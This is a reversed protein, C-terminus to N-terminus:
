HGKSKKGPLIFKLWSPASPSFDADFEVVPISGMITSTQLQRDTIEWWTPNGAKLQSDIFRPATLNSLTSSLDPSIGLRHFFDFNYQWLQLASDPDWMSQIHRELFPRRMSLYDPAVAASLIGTGHLALHPIEPLPVESPAEQRQLRPTGAGAGPKVGNPGPPMFFPNGGGRVGFFPSRAQALRPSHHVADKKQYSAMPKM